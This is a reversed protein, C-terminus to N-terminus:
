KRIEAMLHFIRIKFSNGEIRLFYKVKGLEQIEFKKAPYRKLRHKEEENKYRETCSHMKLM